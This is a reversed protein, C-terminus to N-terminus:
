ISSEMMGKYRRKKYELGLCLRCGILEQLPHKFLVGVRRDCNPCRYWFRCGGNHTTTTTLTVSRDFVRIEAEIVSRKLDSKYRNVFHKIDIRQCNEVLFNQGLNNSSLTKM